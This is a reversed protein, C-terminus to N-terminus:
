EVAYTMGFIMDSVGDTLDSVIIGDAAANSEPSYFDLFNRSKWLRAVLYLNDIVVVDSLIIASTPVVSSSTFPLDRLYILNAATLGTTDINAGQLQITVTNGIKTYIGGWSTSSQNGGTGADYIYPSFTGEEYDDLTNPDSSPVATAPFAIPGHLSSMNTAVAGSVTGNLGNGSADVWETTTIGGPNLNLVCGIQTTTVNDIYFTGADVLYFYANEETGKSIGSYSFTQMDTTLSVSDVIANGGLEEFPTRLVLTGTGTSVRAQFQYRTMKGIDPVTHYTTTLSIDNSTSGAGSAVVQLEGGTVTAVHNGVDGWNGAGSFDSDNSNTILNTQSAGVYKYPVEAGSSLAKVEAASLALNFLKISSISGDWYHSSSQRVGVLSTEDYDVNDTVIGDENGNQYYTGTTTSYDRTYAIVSNVGAIIESDSQTVVSIGAKTVYWKDDPNVYLGLAGAGGGILGHSAGLSAANYIGIISFDGTNFTLGDYTIFNSTGDFWYSPGRSALDAVSQSNTFYYGGADMDAGLSATIGTVTPSTGFVAAGTGTEDSLVGLLEASTTAAFFDLGDTANPVASGSETIAGLTSAGAGLTGTTVLNENGFSIAASSDTISGGDITMTGAKIGNPFKQENAAYALGGFVLSLIGIEIIWRKLNLM